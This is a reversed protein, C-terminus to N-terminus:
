LQNASLFNHVSQKRSFQGANKKLVKHATRSYEGASPGIEITSDEIPVYEFKSFYFYSREFLVTKTPTELNEECKSTNEDPSVIYLRTRLEEKNINCYEISFQEPSLGRRSKFYSEIISGRLYPTAFYDANGGYIKIQIKNGGQKQLESIAFDLRAMLDDLPLGGFEDVLIPSKKEIQSFVSTALVLVILIQLILKRM